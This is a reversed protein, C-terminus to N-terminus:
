CGMGSIMLGKETEQVRVNLTSKLVELISEFSQKQFTVTIPCERLEENELYLSKQFSKNLVDLVYDLPHDDFEFIKTKWSQYNPDDNRINLLKNSEASYVGKQGATLAVTERNSALTVSGSAVVVETRDEDAIVNFSTGTVTISIGSTKVIFPKEEDKIVEFFAEGSLTVERQEKNYDRSYALTSNANLTIVSGDQLKSTQIVDTYLETPGTTQIIFYGTISGIILLAAAAAISLLPFSKKGEPESGIATSLRNWEYEIEEELIGHAIRSKDWTKKLKEYEQRNEADALLLDLKGIESTTAEGTLKKLILKELEIHNKKNRM